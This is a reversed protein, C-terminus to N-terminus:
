LGVAASVLIDTGGSYNQTYRNNTKTVKKLRRYTEVSLPIPTTALFWSVGESCPPTTLSGTYQKFDDISDM